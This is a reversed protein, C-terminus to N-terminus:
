LKMVFQIETLLINLIVYYVTVSVQMYNVKFSDRDSYVRERSEDLVDRCCAIIAHEECLCVMLQMKSKRDKTDAKLLILATQTQCNDRKPTVSGDILASLVCTNLRASWVNNKGGM